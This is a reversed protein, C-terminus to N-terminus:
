HGRSMRDRTKISFFFTTITNHLPEARQSTTQSSIRFTLSEEHHEDGLHWILDTPIEFRFFCQMVLAGRGRERPCSWMAKVAEALKYDVWNDLSLLPPFSPSGTGTHTVWGDSEWSKAEWSQRARYLCCSLCSGTLWWTRAIVCVESPSETNLSTSWEAESLFFNLLM